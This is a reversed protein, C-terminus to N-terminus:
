SSGEMKAFPSRPYKMKLTARAAKAKAPYSLDDCCQAIHYLAKAHAAALRQPALPAYLIDVRLYNLLADKTQGLSRQCDALTTHAMARLVYDTPSSEQIVKELYQIAQKTQGKAQLCQCRLVIAEHVNKQEAETSTKAKVVEDLIGLAKDYDKAQVYIGARQVEALLRYSTFESKGLVAFAKEANKASGKLAYMRGLWLYLPYHHRSDTSNRRFDQLLEIARDLLLGDKGQATPDAAALRATAEAQGFELAQRLYKQKAADAAPITEDFGKLASRLKDGGAKLDLFAQRMAQSMNAYAISEIDVIKFSKSSTRGRLKVSTPTEETIRGSYRRSKGKVRVRVTDTGSQAHAVSAAALMGVMAALRVFGGVQKDTEM